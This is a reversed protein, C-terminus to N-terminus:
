TRKSRGSHQETVSVLGRAWMHSLRSNLPTWYRTLFGENASKVLVYNAASLKGSLFVASWMLSIGSWSSIILCLCVWCVCLCVGVSSRLMNIICPSLTQLLNLGKRRWKSVIVACVCVCVCKCLCVSHTLAHAPYAHVILTCVSHTHMSLKCGSSGLPVWVDSNFMWLLYFM